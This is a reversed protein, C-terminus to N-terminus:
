FELLFLLPCSTAVLKEGRLGRISVFTEIGFAGYGPGATLPARSSCAHATHSKGPIRYYAPWPLSSAFQGGTNVGDDRMLHM